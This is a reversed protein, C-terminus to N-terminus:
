VGALMVLKGLVQGVEYADKIKNVWGSKRLCGQQSPCDRCGPPEDWWAFYFKSDNYTVHVLRTFVRSGHHNKYVTRWEGKMYVQIAISHETREVSSGFVKCEGPQITVYDRWAGRDHVKARIKYPTSNEMKFAVAFSPQIMLSFFALLLHRKVTRLYISQTKMKILNKFKLKLILIFV